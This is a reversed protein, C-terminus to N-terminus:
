CRFSMYITNLAVRLDAVILLLLADHVLRQLEGLGEPSAAQESYM